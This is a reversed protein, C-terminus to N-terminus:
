TGVALLLILHLTSAEGINYDELHKGNDLETGAFVLVLQEMPIGERDQIKAKVDEISDSGEFELTITRGTLTKVFLSRIREEEAKAEEAETKAEKQIM